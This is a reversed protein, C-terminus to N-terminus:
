ACSRVGELIFEEVEPHNIVLQRSHHDTDVPLEHAAPGAAAVISEASAAVGSNQTEWAVWTNPPVGDLDSGDATGAGSAVLVPSISIVACPPEDLDPLAAYTVANGMSSAVLGIREAGDARLRRVAIRLDDPEAALDAAGPSSGRSRRDFLLVRAGTREAVDGAWPMWDCITQSAGQRLVLGLEADAPGLLAGGLTAGDEGTLTIREAGHPVVDCQDALPTTPPVTVNRNRSWWAWAGVAMAAILVGAVGVALLRTRTM